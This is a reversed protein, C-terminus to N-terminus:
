KKVERIRYEWGDLTYEKDYDAWFDLTATTEAVTACKSGACESWDRAQKLPSKPKRMEVIFPM